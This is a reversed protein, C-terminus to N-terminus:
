EALELIRSIWSFNQAVSSVSRLFSCRFCVIAKRLTWLPEASVHLVRSPKNPNEPDLYYIAGSLAVVLMYNGPLTALCLAPFVFRALSILRFKSTSELLTLRLLLQILVVLPKRFRPVLPTYWALPGGDAYRRRQRDHGAQVDQKAYFLSVGCETRNLLAPCSSLWASFRALLTLSSQEAVVLLQLRLVHTASSTSM